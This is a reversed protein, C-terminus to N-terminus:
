MCAIADTGIAILDICNNLKIFLDELEINIRIPGM